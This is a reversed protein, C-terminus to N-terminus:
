GYWSVLQALVGEEDDNVLVHDGADAADFDKAIAAASAMSIGDHRRALRELIVQTPATVCILDMNPLRARLWARHRRRYLGQTVLLRPTAQLRREIADAVIVFYRDRMGDNFPESRALAQKMEDTLDDDASYLPIGTARAIWEGCRSKGAGSLGYFFLVAPARPLQLLVM